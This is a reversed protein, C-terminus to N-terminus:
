NTKKKKSPSAGTTNQAAFAFCFMGISYLYHFLDIPHVIAHYEQPLTRMAVLGGLIFLIALINWKAAAHRQGWKVLSYLFLAGISLGQVALRYTPNKLDLVALYAVGLSLLMLLSVVVNGLYVYCSIGALAIATAGFTESFLTFQQHLVSVEAFQALWKYEASLLSKDFIHYVRGFKLAGLLATIIPVGMGLLWLRHPAQRVRFILVLALLSSSVLALESKVHTNIDM